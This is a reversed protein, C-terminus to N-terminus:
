WSLERPKLPMPASRLVDGEVILVPEVPGM